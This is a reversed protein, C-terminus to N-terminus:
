KRKYVCSISNTVVPKQSGNKLPNVTKPHRSYPKITKQSISTWTDTQRQTNYLNVELDVARFKM